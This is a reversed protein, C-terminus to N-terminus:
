ATFNKVGSDHSWVCQSTAQNWCGADRDPITSPSLHGAHPASLVVPPWGTASGRRFTVYEYCGDDPSCRVVDSQDVAADADDHSRDGSTTAGRNNNLDASSLLTLIGFLTARIIFMVPPWDGKM